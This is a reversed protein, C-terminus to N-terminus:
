PSEPAAQSPISDPDSRDTLWVVVALLLMTVFALDIVFFAADVLGHALFDVMAAATGIALARERPDRLHRLPLVRWWFIGQLWVFAILGPVGLRVTFNLFVNHPHSLNFEEWATPLVYRTRYAYLFNDPGVGLLPHDRILGLSSFWLAVRFSSTGQSVDFMDRFRPTQLLPILAVLGIVLLIVTWRRWPKGALLGLAVVAAPIGLVIAGRSLSLLLALAIPGAAVLYLVRRRDRVLHGAWARLYALRGGGATVPPGAWLVVAAMLPLVRGLYLGVNNPSGYVSLLRPTGGEATIVDGLFYRALGVLAVMLASGVFADVIRWRAREPDETGSPVRVLALFFLAPELVVLRLERFAEHRHEAFFSAVIAAVVLLTLPRLLERVTRPWAYSMGPTAATGEAPPRRNARARAWAAIERVGWGIVTPILVLEALSFSKGMYSLPHTDLAYLPAALMTLVLGLDPRLFVIAAVVLGAGLTLLFWPSFYFLGTTLALAVVDGHDGLRRFINDGMLTQWAALLAFFGAILTLAVQGWGTLRHWLGAVFGGVRGWAVRPAAWVVTGAGVLALLGLAAAGGRYAGREPEHVVRWDALAWQGWGREAVIEVRHHGPSLGEALPVTATAALPDYLVVYARGERDRPLAPAPEGDVTVFLFARYPGRRVTLAVGTGEFDLAVSPRVDVPEGMDAGQPGLTWPGTFQALDTDARYVGARAAPPRQTWAQVATYVPRPEGDPGFLAFGWHEEADPVAHAQEAPRPQFANLCMVGMWPWEREARELAGVTYAAQEAPDVEGWISAPGPWDDPKSNWGFNTAWIAKHGEGRAELTERLLIVRSVNLVDRAVTRDEPAREFGYPQAAVVDFSSGAGADYLLNLFLDEAYNADGLEVTPALSGLVIRADGDAERIAQAARALLDAYGFPNAKGGWSDGLNPNHWIQYYTIAEGYRHAVMSAYRAYAAPDPPTGAWDPAGDLVVLLRLGRAMAADVVRDAVDWDWVDREPEIEAWSLQQRVWGFGGAEISDLAWTLEDPSYATLPANICARPLTTGTAGPTDAIPQPFGSVWGRTEFRYRAQWQLLGMVGLAVLLVGVILLLGPRRKM